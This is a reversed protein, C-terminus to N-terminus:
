IGGCQSCFPSGSAGRSGGSVQRRRSPGPAARAEAGEAAHPGARHAARRNWGTMVPGTQLMSSRERSLPLIRSPAAVHRGLTVGGHGASAM